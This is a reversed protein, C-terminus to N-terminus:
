VTPYEITVTAADSGDDAGKTGDSKIYVLTNSIQEKGESDKYLHGKVKYTRNWNGDPHIVWTLSQSYYAGSEDEQYNAVFSKYLKSSDGSDVKGVKDADAASITTDDWSETYTQAYRQLSYEIPEGNPTQKNEEPVEDLPEVSAGTIVRTSSKRQQPFSFNGPAKYEYEVTYRLLNPQNNVHAGSRSVVKINEKAIGLVDRAFAAGLAPLTAEAIAVDAHTMITSVASGSVLTEDKWFRYSHVIKLSGDRGQSINESIEKEHVNTTPM